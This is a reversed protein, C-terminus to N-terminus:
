HAAAFMLLIHGQQTTSWVGSCQDVLGFKKLRALLPLEVVRNKSVDRLAAFEKPHLEAVKPTLSSGASAMQQELELPPPGDSPGSGTLFLNFQASPSLLRGPLIARRAM